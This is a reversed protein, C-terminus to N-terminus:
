EVPLQLNIEVPVGDAAIRVETLRTSDVEPPFTGATGLFYNGPPLKMRYRGVSDSGSSFYEPTTAAIRDKKAYVYVDAVGRGNATVTGSIVALEQRDKNRRQALEQMDAVTLNLILSLEDEPDIKVPEGSHKDGPMLPGFREGRKIRAVGWYIGKPLVMKYAGNKGTKPSIFDAPRKSNPSTYLYLEADAAPKGALTSVVGQLTFNNEAAVTPLPSLFLVVLILAFFTRM